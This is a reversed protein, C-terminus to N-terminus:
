LGMKMNMPFKASPYKRKRPYSRGPRIPVLRNSIASMAREFLKKRIEPDDHLFTQILLNRVEVIALNKNPKYEYKKDEEDSNTLDESVENISAMMINYVFISSHFDQLILETKASSFNEIQLRSKLTRFGTEIGWRSNYINGFDEVTFSKDFVNTVLKEVEGTPLIYNIVRLRLDPKGNESRIIIQDPDNAVNIEKLTASSVRFLFKTRTNLFSVYERSFFGRDFIFLNIDIIDINDIIDSEFFECMMDKAMHTEGTGYHKLDARIM